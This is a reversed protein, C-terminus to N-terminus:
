PQEFISSCLNWILKALTDLAVVFYGSIFLFSTMNERVIEVGSCVFDLTCLAISEESSEPIIQADDYVFTLFFFLISHKGSLSIVLKSLFLFFYLKFVM